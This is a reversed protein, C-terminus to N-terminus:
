SDEGPCVPPLWEAELQMNAAYIGIPPHDDPTSDLKVMYKGDQAKDVVEGKCNSLSHLGVLVVRDM